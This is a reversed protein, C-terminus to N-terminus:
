THRPDQADRHLGPLIVEDRLRDAVERLRDSGLALLRPPDHLVRQRGFERIHDLDALRRLTTSVKGLSIGTTLAIHRLPEHLIEPRCLIAFGLTHNTATLGTRAAPREPRQGRILM